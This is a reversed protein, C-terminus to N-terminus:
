GLEDQLPLSAGLVCVTLCEFCLLLLLQAEPSIERFM